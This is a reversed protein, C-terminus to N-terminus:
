TVKKFRLIKAFNNEVNVPFTQSSNPRFIYAGSAQLIIVIENFYVVDDNHHM